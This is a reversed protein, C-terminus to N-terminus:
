FICDQQTTTNARVKKNLTLDNLALLLLQELFVALAHSSLEFLTNSLIACENAIQGPKRDLM